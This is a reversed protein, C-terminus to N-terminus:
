GTIQASAAGDVHKPQELDADFEGRAQKDRRLRFSAAKCSIAFNGHRHVYAKGAVVHAQSHFLRNRSRFRLASRLLNKSRM